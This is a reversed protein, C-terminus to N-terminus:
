GPAPEKGVEMAVPQSLILGGQPTMYAFVLSYGGPELCYWQRIFRAPGSWIVVAAGLALASTRDDLPPRDIFACPPISQGRGNIVLALTNGGGRGAFNFQRSIDVPAQSRNTLTLTIEEAKVDHKAELQLDGEGVGPSLACGSTWCLALALLTRKGTDM